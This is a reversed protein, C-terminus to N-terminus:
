AAKAPQQVLCANITNLAAGIRNMLAQTQVRDFDVSELDPAVLQSALSELSNVSNFLPLFVTNKTVRSM